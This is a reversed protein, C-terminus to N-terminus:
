ASRPQLAALLWAVGEAVSGDNVVTQALVGEPLQYDARGLRATIQPMTERGRAALREALVSFPATVVIVRLDPFVQKARLLAGRSGNFVVTKARDIQAAEIGYCLGHAAWDLVFDGRAKRISFAAPSIGEFLEGGSDTPRTIVRRVLVIEPWAAVLAALLTDKGAGSPGVVAAIM